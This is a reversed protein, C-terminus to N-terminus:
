RCVRIHCARPRGERHGPFFVVTSGLLPLRGDLIESDHIHYDVGDSGKLFGYRRQHDFTEVIGLLMRPPVMRVVQTARATRAGKPALDGTVLVPEDLIPPPPHSDIQCRPAGRCSPCRTVDVVPGPQFTSLHFFFENGEEDHCFGYLKDPYYRLVRMQHEPM